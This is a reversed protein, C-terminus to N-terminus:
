NKLIGAVAIAPIEAVKKMEPVNKALVAKIEETDRIVNEVMQVTSDFTMDKIDIFSEVELKEFLGVLKHSYAIGLVPVGSSLGAIAAHMRSAILFNCRAIVGKLQNSTLNRDLIQVRDKQQVLGLIDYATQYDDRGIQVVHPILVVKANKNVIMWDITEAMLKIFGLYPDAEDQYKFGYKTALESVAVGVLLDNENHAIGVSFDPELLFASDIVVDVTKNIGLGMVNQYSIDERVSIYSCKNFFHKSIWRSLPNKFPGLGEAYIIVPKKMILGLTLYYLRWFYPFIGYDEGLIDGDTSVFADSHAIQKMDRSFVVKTFRYMVAELTWTIAKLASSALYIVSKMKERQGGFTQVYRVGELPQCSDTYISLVTFDTDPLQKRIAGIRSKLLAEAGRNDFGVCTAIVVSYRKNM